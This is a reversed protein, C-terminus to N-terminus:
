IIYLLNFYACHGVCVSLLFLYFFKGFMPLGDQGIEGPLRPDTLRLDDAGSRASNGGFISSGQYASQPPAASVESPGGFAAFGAFGGVVSSPRVTSTSTTSTSPSAARAATGNNGTSPINSTNIINSNPIIAGANNLNSNNMIMHREPQGVIGSSGNVRGSVAPGSEGEGMWNHLDRLLPSPLPHDGLGMETPPTRARSPAPITPATTDGEVTSFLLDGEWLGQASTTATAITPIPPLTPPPVAVVNM